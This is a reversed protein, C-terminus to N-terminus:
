KDKKFNKEHENKIMQSIVKNATLGKAKMLDELQDRDKKYVKIENLDENKSSASFKGWADKMNEIVKDRYSIKPLADFDITPDNTNIKKNIIEYSYDINPLTDLSALILNYKDELTTPIFINQLILYDRKESSLYNYAWEIQNGDDGKLWNIERDTRNKFYDAKIKEIFSFFSSDKAIVKNSYYLYDININKLYIEEYKLYNLIYTSLESGGYFSRNSLASQILYAIHLSNRLSEKIWILSSDPLQNNIKFQILNHFHQIPYPHSKFINVLISKFAGRDQEMNPPAYGLYMYHACVLSKCDDENFRDVTKYFEELTKWNQKLYHFHLDTNFKYQQALYYAYAQNSIEQNLNINEQGQNNAVGIVNSSHPNTLPTTMSSSTDITVVPNESFQEGSYALSEDTYSANNINEM